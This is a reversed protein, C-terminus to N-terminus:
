NFISTDASNKLFEFINFIDYEKIDPQNISGTTIYMFVEAKRAQEENCQDINNKFVNDEDAILEKNYIFESVYSKQLVYIIAEQYCKHLMKFEVSDIFASLLIIILAFRENNHNLYNKSKNINNLLNDILSYNMNEKNCKSYIYQEQINIIEQISNIIDKLEHFHKKICTYLYEKITEDIIVKINTINKCYYELKLQMIKTIFKVINISKCNTKDIINTKDFFICVCGANYFCEKIIDHKLIKDTIEKQLEISM